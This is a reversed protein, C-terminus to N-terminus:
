INSNRGKSLDYACLTNLDLEVDRWSLKTKIGKGETATSTITTATTTTHVYNNSNM